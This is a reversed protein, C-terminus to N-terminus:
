RSAPTGARAAAAAGHPVPEEAACLVTWVPHVNFFLATTSRTLFFLLRDGCCVRCPWCVSLVSTTMAYPDLRCARPAAGRVQLVVEESPWSRLIRYTADFPGSQWVAQAGSVDRQAILTLVTVCQLQVPTILFRLSTNSAMGIGDHSHRSYRSSLVLLEM